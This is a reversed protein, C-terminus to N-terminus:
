NDATTLDIMGDTILGLQAAFQAIGANNSADSLWHAFNRPRSPGKAIYEIVKGAITMLFSRCRSFPMKPLPKTFIDAVMMESKVLHVAIKNTLRLHRAFHLWREFHTTHKTAGPNNIVDKAASNDTMVQIPGSIVGPGHVDELIQYAFLGEKVMLVLAALEIHTSAVPVFKAKQTKWMLPGKRWEIFGGIFPFSDNCFTADAWM